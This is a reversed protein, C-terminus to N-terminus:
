FSKGSVEELDRVYWRDAGPTMLVMYEHPANQTDILKNGDFTQIELQAQDLLQMAAGDSSYFMAKLHHGRDVIHVHVGAQRQEGVRQLLRDKAFGVFEESLGGGQSSELAGALDRWALAYHRTITTGTLEEIPRPALGAADLRVEPLQIPSSSQAIALVCAALVFSAAKVLGPNNLGLNGLWPNAFRPSIKRLAQTMDALSKM